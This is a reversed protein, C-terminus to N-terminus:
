VFYLVLCVPVWILNAWMITKYLTGSWSRLNDYMLWFVLLNAVANILLM